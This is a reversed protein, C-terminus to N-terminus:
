DDKHGHIGPQMTSIAPTPWLDVSREAGDNSVIGAGAFVQLRQLEDLELLDCVDDLLWGLSVTVNRLESASGTEVRFSRVLEALRFTVDDLKIVRQVRAPPRSELTVGQFFQIQPM